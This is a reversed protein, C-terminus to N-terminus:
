SWILEPLSRSGRQDGTLTGDVDDELVRPSFEAAIRKLLGATDESEVGTLQQAAAPTRLGVRVSASKVGSAQKGATDIMGARRVGQTPTSAALGMPTSAVVSGGEAAAENAASIATKLLPRHPALQATVQVSADLPIADHEADEKVTLQGAPQAPAPPSGPAATGYLQNEMRRMWSNGATGSELLKAARGGTQGPASSAVTSPSGGGRGQEWSELSGSAAPLGAGPDRRPAAAALGELDGGGGLHTIWDSFGGGGGGTSLLSEGRRERKGRGGDEQLAVGLLGVVLAAAAACMAVRRRRCPPRVPEPGESGHEGDSPPPRNAAEMADM